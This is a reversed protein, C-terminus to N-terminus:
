GAFVLLGFIILWMACMAMWFWATADLAIQRLELRKLRGVLFVGGGISALGVLLHLMHFGTLIYFTNSAPTVNRTFSLGRAVLQRWAELQGALFTVGLILTASLWPMARKMAPRGLGLWEDMVDIERFIHRRAMEMTFASMLLVATNVYLIPPLELPYWDPVYNAGFRDWHHTSHRVFFLAVLVTLVMFDGALASLLALRIIKLNSRPGSRGKQWEEDGDGGGGTPPKEIPPKAGGGSRMRERQEEQKEAVSEANSNNVQTPM